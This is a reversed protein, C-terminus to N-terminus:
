GLVALSLRDPRLGDVQDFTNQQSTTSLIFKRGYPSFLFHFILFVSILRQLEERPYTGFAGPFKGAFFEGFEGDMVLIMIVLVIGRVAAVPLQQADVAVVVFMGAGQLGFPLISLPRIGFFSRYGGVRRKCPETFQQMSRGRMFFVIFCFLKIERM